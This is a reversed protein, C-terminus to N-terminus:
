ISKWCINKSNMKGHQILNNPNKAKLTATIADIGCSFLLYFHNDILSIRNEPAYVARYFSGNTFAGNM